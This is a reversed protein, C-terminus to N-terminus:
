GMDFIGRSTSISKNMIARHVTSEHLSLSQALTKANLPILSFNNGQFFDIQRFLIERAVKILTNNRYNIAKVLLNAERCKENIYHKDALSHSHKKVDKILSNDVKIEPFDDNILVNFDNIENTVILDVPRNIAVEIKQSQIFRLAEKIDSKISDLLLTNFIKSKRKKTLIDVLLQEHLDSYVGKYKLITQIKELLNFTFYHGQELTKLRNIVFILLQYNYHKRLKELINLELYGEETINYILTEAIKKEKESLNLFVMQQLLEKHFDNEDELLDLNNNYLNESRILFPNETTEREIVERLDMNNLELIKLSLSLEPLLVINNKLFLSISNKKEMM